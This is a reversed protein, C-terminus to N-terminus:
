NSAAQHLVWARLVTLAMKENNLIHIVTSLGTEIFGNNPSRVFFVKKEIGLNKRRFTELLHLFRLKASKRIFFNM